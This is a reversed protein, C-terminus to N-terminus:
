VQTVYFAEPEVVLPSITNVVLQRQVHSYLQFFVSVSLGSGRTTGSLLLSHQDISKM